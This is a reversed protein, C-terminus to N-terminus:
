TALMVSYINFPFYEIDNEDNIAMFVVGLQSALFQKQMTNPFPNLYDAM